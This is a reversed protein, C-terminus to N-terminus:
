GNISVGKSNRAVLKVILPVIILQLLIGLFAKVFSNAMFMYLVFAKGGSTLLLFNLLGSVARGLLMAVILALYINHEKNNYMYGAVWGYAALEFAMSIGVPYIPPMGTLLSSIVPTIFGVILGERKGVIFGCLLVPIHMPLFIQGPIGSIHFIYPVILGLALFLSAKVLSKTNM